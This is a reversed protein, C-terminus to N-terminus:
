SVLPYLVWDGDIETPDEDQLEKLTRGYAYAAPNGDSDLMPRGGDDDRDTGVSYILPKGDILTYWLLNGSYQDIFATNNIPGALDSISDPFKGYTNKHRQVQVLLHAANSMTKRNAKNFFLNQFGSVSKTAPLYEVKSQIIQAHTWESVKWVPIELDQKLAAYFEDVLERQESESAWVLQYIFAHGALFLDLWFNGIPEDRVNFLSLFIGAYALNSDSFRALGLPTVRGNMSSQYIWDLYEQSAIREHEVSLSWDVAQDFTILIDLLQILQDDDFYSLDLDGNLVMTLVFSEIANAVLMESYSDSIRVLIAMGAISRFNRLVREANRQDNAIYMDMNIFSVHNRFIGYSSPVLDSLSRPSAGMANTYADEGLSSAIFSAEQFSEGTYPRAAYLQIKRILDPHDRVYQKTWEWAVRDEEYDFEADYQFVFENGLESQMQIAAEVEQILAWAKRDDPVASLWADHRLIFEAVSEGEEPKPQEGANANWVVALLILTILRMDHTYLLGLFFGMLHRPESDSHKM